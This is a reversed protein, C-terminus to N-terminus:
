GRWGVEGKKGRGSKKKGKRKKSAPEYEGDSESNIGDYEYGEQYKSKFATKKKPKLKSRYCNVADNLNKNVELTRQIDPDGHKINECLDDVQQLILSIFEESLELNYNDGTDFHELSVFDTPELKFEAEIKEKKIRRKRKTGERIAAEEGNKQKKGEKKSTKSKRSIKKKPSYDSDIESVDSPEIENKFDEQVVSAFQKETDVEDIEVKIQSCTHAFLEEHTGFTMHCTLCCAIGESSM